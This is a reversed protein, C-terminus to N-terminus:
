PPTISALTATAMELFDAEAVYPKLQGDLWLMAAGHVVFWPGVTESTMGDGPSWTLNTQGIARQLLLFARLAAQDLREPCQDGLIRRSSFMLRYREPNDLAFRLYVQGAGSRWEGEPLRDLAMELADALTTYGDTALEALLLMRTGVHHRPAAHSVDLNRALARLTVAEVGEAELLRSAERLLANRLDGHHYTDSRM